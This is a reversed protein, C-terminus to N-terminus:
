SEDNKTFGIKNWNIDWAGIDDWEEKMKEFEELKLM